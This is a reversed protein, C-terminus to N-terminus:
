QAFGGEMNVKSNEDKKQKLHICFTGVGTEDDLEETYEVVFADPFIIQRVVQGAAIIKITAARYCDAKESPVQAWKAMLATADLTSGGMKYLIKGSIKVALGFDTARANSDLSSASIFNVDTISQEDFSINDAGGTVQLTFGM